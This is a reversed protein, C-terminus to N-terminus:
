SRIFIVYAVRWTRRNTSWLWPHPLLLHDLRDTPRGHAGIQTINRWGPISSESVSLLAERDDTGDREECGILLLTIHATRQAYM